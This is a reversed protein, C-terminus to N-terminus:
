IGGLKKLLITNKIIFYPFLIIGVAMYVIKYNNIFGNPFGMRMIKKVAVEQLSMFDYDPYIENPEKGVDLIIDRINRVCINESKYICRKYQGHCDFVRWFLNYSLIRM